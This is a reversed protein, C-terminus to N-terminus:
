LGLYSLHKASTGKQGPRADMDMAVQFCAAAEQYTRRELCALGRKYAEESSAPPDIAPMDGRARRITQPRCPVLILRLDPGDVAPFCFARARFARASFM